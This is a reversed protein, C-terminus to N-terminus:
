LIIQKYKKKGAYQVQDVADLAEWNSGRLQWEWTFAPRAAAASVQASDEV